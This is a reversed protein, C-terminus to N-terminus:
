TRALSPITLVLNLALNQNAYDNKQAKLARSSPYFWVESATVETGTAERARVRSLYRHWQLNVFFTYTVILIKTATRLGCYIAAWTGERVLNYPRLSSEKADCSARQREEQLKSTSYPEIPLERPELSPKLAM